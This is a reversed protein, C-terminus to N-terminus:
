STGKEKETGLINKNIEDSSINNKELAGKLCTLYEKFLEGCAEDHSQKSSMDKLFVDRFWSNFCNDYKAKLPTCSDDISNM